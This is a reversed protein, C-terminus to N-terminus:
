TRCPLQSAIELYKDHIRKTLDFFGETAAQELDWWALENLHDTDEWVEKYEAREWLASKVSVLGDNDGEEEKIIKYPKRLIALVNEISTSGTYARLETHNELDDEFAKVEADNNFSSCADRTLDRVGEINLSLRKLVGILEGHESIGKDAFSTGLHPTGITTLSAVREHIRGKNRDNFLMHRADLGGMSHAIINVKEIGPRELVATVNKRLQEARKDVGEAWPVSSHYVSFGHKMLRTRIGRFYHFFDRFPDDKNDLDILRSWGVDFRAIGHALIIPYTSKSNM